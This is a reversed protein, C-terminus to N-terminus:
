EKDVKSSLLRLFVLSIEVFISTGQHNISTKNLSLLIFDTEAKSKIKTYV